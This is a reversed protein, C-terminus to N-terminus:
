RTGSTGACSPRAGLPQARDPGEGQDGPLGPTGGPVPPHLDRDGGAPLFHHAPDAWGWEDFADVGLYSRPGIIVALSVVIGLTPSTQLWGHRLRAERGRHARRGVHHGAPYEGGLGLGQILRLAFLLIAAALGIPAYTLVFGIPATSIGM